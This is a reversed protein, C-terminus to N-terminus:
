KSVWRRTRSGSSRKRSRQVQRQTRMQDQTYITRAQGRRVRVVPYFPGEPLMIRFVTVEPCIPRVREVLDDRGAALAREVYWKLLDGNISSIGREAARIGFHTVTEGGIGAPCPWVELADLFPRLM